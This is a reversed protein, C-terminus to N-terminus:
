GGPARALFRKLAAIYRDFAEYQPVHGVDGLEVLEAGPIAAAATKGLTTYDGLTAAVDPAVTNRGLATRDRTGIILLTPVAIRPFEYVVPQTFIMDATLASLWATLAHDPGLTWGAQIAVLPDYAPSWKGDFYAKQMYGKVSAPTKALEGRYVADVTRYPVVTKWDELGIPNVLVLAESRAPFMLAYRTALMGGMSHGVVTAKQVGLDSLLAQTHTALEQFSFQFQRPKSSKGFGVQDPAIVRYGERLLAAMTTQWYAGSFNKGHLLLVARGNARDPAPKVDMYAMELAVGQSEFRRVSVAYPYDYGGLRADLPAIGSQAGASQPAFAAVTALLAFLCSMLSRTM